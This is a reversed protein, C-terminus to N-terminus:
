GVLGPTIPHDHARNRHSLQQSPSSAPVSPSTLCAAPARPRGDSTPSGLAPAGAARSDRGEPRPPGHAGRAMGRAGPSIPTRPVRRLPAVAYRTGHRRGTLLAALGRAMGACMATPRQHIQRLLEGLRGDRTEATGPPWGRPRPGRRDHRLLPIQAAAHPRHRLDAASARGGEMLTKLGQTATWTPDSAVVPRCM